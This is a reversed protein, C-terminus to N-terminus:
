PCEKQMKYAAYNLDEPTTIKFNDGHGPVIKVKGGYYRILSADDTFQKGESLARVHASLLLEKLFIQPTQCAWLQRRDPTDTLFGDENVMLITDSVPVALTSAGWERCAEIGARVTDPSVFPRAADHLIVIEADAELSTLANRVSEQREAGGAVLLVNM